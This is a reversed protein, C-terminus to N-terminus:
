TAAMLAKYASVIRKFKEEAVKRPADTVSAAVKDPHCQLALKRFAHKVEEESALQSRSLGLTDYHQVLSSPIGAAPGGGRLRAASEDLGLSARFFEQEEDPIDFWTSAEERHQRGRARPRRQKRTAKSSMRSSRPTATEGFSAQHASFDDESDRTRSTRARQQERLLQRLTEWVVDYKTSGSGGGGLSSGASPAEREASAGDRSFYIRHNINYHQQSSGNARYGGDPAFRFQEAIDRLERRSEARRKRKIYKRHEAKSPKGTFQNTFSQEWKPASLSCCGHLGRFASNSALAGTAHRLVAHWRM